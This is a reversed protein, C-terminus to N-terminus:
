PTNLLSHLIYQYRSVMQTLISKGSHKFKGEYSSTCYCVCRFAVYNLRCADIKRVVGRRSSGRPWCPFRLLFSVFQFILVGSSFVHRNTFEFEQEFIFNEVFNDM